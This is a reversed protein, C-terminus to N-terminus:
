TPTTKLVNLAFTKTTIFIMVIDLKVNGM